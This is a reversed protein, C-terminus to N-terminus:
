RNLSPQRQPSSLSRMQEGKERQPHQLSPRPPPSQAILKLAERNLTAPAVEGDVFFTPVANIGLRLAFQRDSEVRKLVQPSAIDSRFRKMDLGLQEAYSELERRTFKPQNRYLLKGMEFFKGQEAAAEAALAAEFAYQHNDLPLHRFVWRVRAANKPDRFFAMFEQFHKKCSPCQFDAFEVITHPAKPSGLAHNEATFLVPPRVVRPPPPPAPRVLMSGRVMAFLAVGVVVVIFKRDMSYAALTPDRVVDDRRRILLILPFLLLCIAASVLCWTCYARIVFASIGTLVLSVLVALASLLCACRLLAERRRGLWEILILVSLSIYYLFGFAATPIPGVEAYISQQVADCGKGTCAVHAGRLHALTLYGAVLAGSLSLLLAFRRVM